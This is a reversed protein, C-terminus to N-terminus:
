LAAVMREITMIAGDGELAHARAEFASPRSKLMM